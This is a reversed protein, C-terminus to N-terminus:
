DSSKDGAPNNKTPKAELINLWDGWGTQKHFNTYEYATQFSHTLGAEGIYTKHDVAVVSLSFDPKIGKAYPSNYYHNAALITKDMQAKLEDAITKLEADGTAKAMQDAYYQLDVFIIDPDVVYIDNEIAKNIEAKKDPYLAQLRSSLKKCIPFLKEFEKNDLLNMDGNCSAHVKNAEDYCDKFAAKTSTPFDTGKLLEKVLSRMSECGSNLSHMCSITYDSIPYLDALSEMNGMLCSHMFVGDFHPIQSKEVARRFEYM